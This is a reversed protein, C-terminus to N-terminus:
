LEKENAFNYIFGWVERKYECFRAHLNVFFVKKGLFSCTVFIKQLNAGIFLSVSFCDRWEKVVCITTHTTPNTDTSKTVARKIM